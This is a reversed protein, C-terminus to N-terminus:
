VGKHSTLNPSYKSGPFIFSLLPSMSPLPFQLPFLAIFFYPLPSSGSPCTSHLRLSSVLPPSLFPNSCVALWYLASFIWLSFQPCGQRSMIATQCARNLSSRYSSRGGEMETQSRGETKEKRCWPYPVYCHGLPPWEWMISPRPLVPPKDRAPGMKQRGKGSHWVVQKFQEQQSVDTVPEERCIVNTLIFSCLVDTISGRHKKMLDKM